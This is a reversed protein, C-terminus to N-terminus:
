CVTACVADCHLSNIPPVWIIKAVSRISFDASEEELPGLPSSPLTNAAIEATRNNIVPLLRSEHVAVMNKNRECQMVTCLSCNLQDTAGM